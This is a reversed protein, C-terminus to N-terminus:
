GDCTELHARPQTADVAQLAASLRRRARHARMSLTRPSCGLVTAAESTSLGEWALLLLVERDADSLRALARRLVGDSVEVPVESGPTTATLRNLLATRRHEGRYSHALVHRACALLWPVPEPPVRELRRWAIVFVESLVDDATAPDTRRRAYALVTAAHAAFLAELRARRQGDDM